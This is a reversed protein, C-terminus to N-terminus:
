TRLHVIQLIELELCEIANSLLFTSSSVIYLYMVCGTFMVCLMITNPHIYVFSTDNDYLYWLTSLTCFSLVCYVFWRWSTIVTSIHVSAQRSTTHQWKCILSCNYSHLYAFVFIHIKTMCYDCLQCLCSYSQINDHVMTAVIILLYLFIYKQWVIIVFNVYLYSLSIECNIVTLFYTCQSASSCNDNALSISNHAIADWM